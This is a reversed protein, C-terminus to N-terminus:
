FGFVTISKEIQSNFFIDVGAFFSILSCENANSMRGGVRSKSEFHTKAIVETVV